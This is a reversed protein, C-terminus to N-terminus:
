KLRGPHADDAAKTFFILNAALKLCLGYRCTVVRDPWLSAAVLIGIGTM